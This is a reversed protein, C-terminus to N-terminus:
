RKIHASRKYASIIPKDRGMIFLDISVGHFFILNSEILVEGCRAGGVEFDGGLGLPREFLGVGVAFICGDFIGGLWFRYADFAFPIYLLVSRSRFIGLAWGEGLPLPSKSALFLLRRFRLSFPLVNVSSLLRFFVVQFFYTLM